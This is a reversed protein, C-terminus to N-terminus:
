PDTRLGGSTMSGVLTTLMVGDKSLRHSFSGATVAVEQELLTQQLTTGDFVNGIRGSIYLTRLYPPDALVGMQTMPVAGNASLRVEMLDDAGADTICVTGAGLANFIFQLLRENFGSASPDAGDYSVSGVNVPICASDGLLAWSGTPDFGFGYSRVDGSSAAFFSAYPASSDEFTVSNVTVSGFNVIFRPTPKDDKTVDLTISAQGTEFTVDAIGPVSFKLVVNTANGATIGFTFPQPDTWIANVNTTVGALTRTLVPAPYAGYSLLLEYTGVGLTKTFVTEPGDFPYGASWSSGALSLSLQTGTVFTYTAGDSGITSLAAKLTGTKEVEARADDKFDSGCGTSALPTACMLAVVVLGFFKAFVKM